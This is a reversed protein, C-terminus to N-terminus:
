LGEDHWMKWCSRVRGREARESFSAEVAGGSNPSGIRGPENSMTLQTKTRDASGGCLCASAILVRIETRRKGTREREREKRKRPGRDTSASSIALEERRHSLKEGRSTPEEESVIGEAVGGLQPEM